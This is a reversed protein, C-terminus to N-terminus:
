HFSFCQDDIFTCNVLPKVAATGYLWLVLEFNGTTLPLVHVLFSNMPRLATTGLSYTVELIPLKAICQM